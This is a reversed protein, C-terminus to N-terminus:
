APRDPRHLQPAALAPVARRQTPPPSATRSARSSRSWSAACAARPRCSSRPLAPRPGPRPEQTRGFDAILAADLRDTKNRRLTAQAYRAVALPQLLSSRHSRGRPRPPGRPFGALASSAPRGALASTSRAPTAPGLWCSPPAHGAPTNPVTTTRAPSQLLCADLKDKSVDVLGLITKTSSM